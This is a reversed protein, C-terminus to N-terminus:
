YESDGEDSLDEQNVKRIEVREQLLEDSEGEGLDERSAPSEATKGPGATEGANGAAAEEGAEPLCCRHGPNEVCNVVLRRCIRPKTKWRNATVRGNAPSKAPREKRQKHRQQQQQQGQQQGQQERQQQRRQQQQQASNFCRRVPTKRPPVAEVEAEADEAESRANGVAETEAEAPSFVPQQRRTQLRYPRTRPPNAVGNRRGGNNAGGNPGAAAPAPNRGKPPLPNKCCVHGIRVKCNIRFGHCYAPAYKIPAETTTTSPESVPSLDTEEAITIDSDAEVPDPNTNPEGQARALVLPVLTALLM